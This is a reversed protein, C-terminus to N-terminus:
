DGIMPRCCQRAVQQRQAAARRRTTQLRMAFAALRQHGHEGGSGVSAAAALRGNRRRGVVGLWGVARAGCFFM